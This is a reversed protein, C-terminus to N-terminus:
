QSTFREGMRAVWSECERSATCGYLRTWSVNVRLSSLWAVNRYREAKTSMSGNTVRENHHKLAAIYENSEYAEQRCHKRLMTGDLIRSPYGVAEKIRETNPVLGRGLHQTDVWSRSAIYHSEYAKPAPAHGM